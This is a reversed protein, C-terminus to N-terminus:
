KMSVKPRKARKLLEQAGGAFIVLLVVLMLLVGAFAAGEMLVKIWEIRHPRLDTGFRLHYLTIALLGCIIAPFLIGYLIRM